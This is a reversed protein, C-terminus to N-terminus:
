ESKLLRRIIWVVIDWKFYDKIFKVIRKPKYFLWHLYALMQLKVLMDRPIQELELVKGSQKGYLRWDNSLIKYGGLGQEAMARVETGPFPVMIAYNM